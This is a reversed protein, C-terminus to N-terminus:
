NTEHLYQLLCIILMESIYSLSVSFLLCSKSTQPNFLPLWSELIKSFLLYKIIIQEKNIVLGIRNSRSVLFLFIHNFHLSTMHRSNSAADDACEQTWPLMPCCYRVSCSETKLDRWCCCCCSCWWCCCCCSWKCCREAAILKLSALGCWWWDTSYTTPSSPSHSLSHTLSRIFCGSRSVIIALLTSQCYWSFIKM